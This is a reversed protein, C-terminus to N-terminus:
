AEGARVADYAANIEAMRREGEEGAGRDPHWRKALDKYAAAVESETSGPRVGLVAYPDVGTMTASRMRTSARASRGNWASTDVSARCCSTSAIRVSPSRWGLQSSVSSRM